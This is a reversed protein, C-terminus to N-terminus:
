KGLVECFIQQLIAKKKAAVNYASDVASATKKVAKATQAKNLGRLMFQTAAGKIYAQKCLKDLSELESKKM